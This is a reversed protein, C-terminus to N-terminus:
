RLQNDMANDVSGDVPTQVADPDSESTVPQAPSEGPSDEVLHNRYVGVSVSGGRVFAIREGDPAVCPQREFLGPTQTLNTLHRGDTTALFLDGGVPGVVDEVLRVFVLGSSDPLWIPETGVGLRWILGTRLSAMYLGSKLGRYAVWGGDPSLIPDEYEDGPASLLLPQGGPFAPLAIIRGSAVIVPAPPPNSPYTEGTLLVEVWGGLTPHSVKLTMGDDNWEYNTKADPLRMVFRPAAGPTPAQVFLERTDVRVMALDIGLPSWRPRGYGVRETVPRSDELRQPGAAGPYPVALGKLPPLGLPDVESALGPADSEEPEVATAPVSEAGVISEGPLPVAGPEGDGTLSTPDTPGDPGPTSVVDRLAITRTVPPPMLPNELRQRIQIVAWTAVMSLLVVVALSAALFFRKM